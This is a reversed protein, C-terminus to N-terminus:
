YVNTNGNTPLVHIKAPILCAVVLYGIIVQSTTPYNMLFLTNKIVSEDIFDCLIFLFNTSQTQRM